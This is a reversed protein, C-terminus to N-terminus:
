GDLGREHLFNTTTTPIKRIFFNNYGYPYITHINYFAFIFACVIYTLYLLRVDEHRVKVASMLIPISIFFFLTVFRILVISIPFLVVLIPLALAVFARVSKLEELNKTLKYAFFILVIKLVDVVLGFGDYFRLYYANNSSYGSFMSRLTDLGDGSADGTNLLFVLGILVAVVSYFYLRKSLRNKNLKFLLLLMLPLIMSTHIFFTMVYIIYPIARKEHSYDLYFALAFLNIAVYNYLGSFYYLTHQGFLVMIFIPIFQTNSLGVRKKYDALIYFLSSYGIVVVFFQLLNVDGTRSILLSYLLPLPERSDSNYVEVFSDFDHVTEFKKVISQHRVLDYNDAPTFNYAFFGVLIGLMISLFVISKRTDASFYLIAFLLLGLFPFFVTVAMLLCYLVVRTTKDLRKM